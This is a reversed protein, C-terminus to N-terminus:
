LLSSRCFLLIDGCLGFFRSYEGGVALYMFEDLTTYIRFVRDVYTMFGDLPLRMLGEALPCIRELHFYFSSKMAVKRAFGSM